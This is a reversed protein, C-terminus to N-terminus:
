ALITEANTLSFADEVDLAHLAVKSVHQLEAWVPALMSLQLLPANITTVLTLKCFCVFHPLTFIFFFVLVLVAASFLGKELDSLLHNGNSSSVGDTQFLTLHQKRGPRLVVSKAKSSM